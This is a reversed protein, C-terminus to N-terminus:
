QIRSFDTIGVGYGPCTGYAREKQVFAVSVLRDKLLSLDRTMSKSGISQQTFITMQSKLAQMEAVLEDDSYNRYFLNWDSNAM